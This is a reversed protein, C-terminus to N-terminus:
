CFLDHEFWLVIESYDDVFAELWIQEMIVKDFYGEPKENYRVCIYEERRKWFAPDHLHGSVPGECLMERWVLQQEDKLATRRFVDRTADGNLIHLTKGSYM